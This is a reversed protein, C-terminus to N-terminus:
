DSDGFVPSELNADTPTYSLRRAKKQPYPTNPKWDPKVNNKTANQRTMSMHALKRLLNRMMPIDTEALKDGVKDVMYM